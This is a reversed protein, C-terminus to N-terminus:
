KKVLRVLTVSVDEPYISCSFVLDSILVSGTATFERCGICQSCPM